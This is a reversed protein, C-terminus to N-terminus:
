SLNLTKKFNKMTLIDNSQRSTQRSQLASTIEVFGEKFMVFPIGQFDPKM